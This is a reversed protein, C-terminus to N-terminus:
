KGGLLKRTARKLARKREADSASLGGSGGSSAEPINPAGDELLPIFDTPVGEVNQPFPVDGVPPTPPKIGVESAIPTETGNVVPSPTPAPTPTTGKKKATKAAQGSSINVGPADPIRDSGKLRSGRPQRKRETQQRKTRGARETRSRPTRARRGRREATSEALEGEGGALDSFGGGTGGDRQGDGIESVLGGLITEQNLFDYTVNELAADLRYETGDTFNIKNIWMGARYEPRIGILKWSSRRKVWENRAKARAAAFEAHDAESGPPLIRTIPTTVHSGDNLLSDHETPKSNIQHEERYGGPSDIFVMPPGEMDRQSEEDLQNRARTSESYGTVRHDYAIACNIKYDRLSISAASGILNGEYICYYEGDAQEAIGDLWFSGDGDMRVGINFPADYYDSGSSNVQVRIPYNSPLRQNSNGNVDGLFYQLQHPGVPRGHKQLYPYKDTDTYENNAGDMIGAAAAAQTDIIFNTFVKPFFLRLHDIAEKSNASITPRSNTGDATVFTSTDTENGQASPYQANTGNGRIGAVFAAQQAATWGPKVTGATSSFSSEAKVNAGKVLAAHTVQSADEELRFDYATFVDTASGGKEMRIDMDFDNTRRLASVFVPYFEVYKGDMRLKHTGSVKLTRDIAGLMNMGRFDVDPMKRDLPDFSQTGDSGIMNLSSSLWKIRVSNKISRWYEHDTGPVEGRSINSLLQLYMLFRRPTWATLEGRRLRTRFTEVPSNYTKLFEATQTFVPYTGGNISVGICNYAENPNTRPTYRDLFKVEEADDDWVLAGTLWIRNLLWRADWAEWQIVQSSNIDRRKVLQGDFLLAKDTFIRVRTDPRFSEGFDELTIPATQSTEPYFHILAKGPEIGGGDEVAVCHAYQKVSGDIEVTAVTANRTPSAEIDISGTAM